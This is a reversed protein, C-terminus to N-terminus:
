RGSKEPLAVGHYSYLSYSDAFQMAAEGQAHLRQERDFALKIPRDCVLAIKEYPYIWGCHKVISQFVEWIQPQAQCSLVSICFDYLSASAAWLGPQICTDPPGLLPGGMQSSLQLWLKSWLRSWLEDWLQCRLQLWLQSQLQSSLQSSLQLWLQSSLGLELELKLCSGWQHSLYSELLSLAAYPSACFLVSPEALDIAAYAAKVAVSATKCAIPETSLAIARWKQQIVPILTEQKPTLKSIM